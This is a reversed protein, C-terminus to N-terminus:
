LFYSVLKIVISILGSADHFLSSVSAFPRSFFSFVFVLLFNPELKVAVCYLSYQWLVAKMVTYTSCHLKITKTATITVFSLIVTVHWLPERSDQKM